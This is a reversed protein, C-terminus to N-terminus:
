KKEVSKKYQLYKSCTRVAFMAVVLQHDIDLQSSLPTALIFLVLITTYYLYIKGFDRKRGLCLLLVLPLPNCPILYWNWRTVFLHSVTSTYTLALGVFFQITLLVADLVKAAKKWGWCWEGITILVVIVLLVSFLIRPTIPSAKVFHTQHALEIPASKFLPRRAGSDDVIQANGFVEVLSLPSMRYELAFYEDCNSGFLTIYLFEYWPTSGTLHRVCDGNNTTAYWPLKGYDIHESILANQVMIIVMMVCNTNLYNFKLHPPKMMEEDLNKWLLQKEHHTLSLEYQKIGRGDKQYESIYDSTPIARVSADADGNFFKLYDGPQANMELSFCYDLDESPCEMRLACHGMSSYIIDTPTSVIVSAKVFDSSDTLEKKDEASYTPIGTLFLAISIFLRIVSYQQHQTMNRHYPVINITSIQIFFPPM